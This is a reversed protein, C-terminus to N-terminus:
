NLVEIRDAPRPLKDMNKVAEVFGTAVREDETYFQLGRLLVTNGLSKCVAGAYRVGCSDAVDKLEKLRVVNGVSGEEVSSETPYTLEERSDYNLLIKVM